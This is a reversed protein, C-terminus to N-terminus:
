EIFTGEGGSITVDKKQDYSLGARIMTTDTALYTYVVGDEDTLASWENDGESVFVETDVIPSGDATVFSLKTRTRGPVDGTYLTGINGGTVEVSDPTGLRLVSSTRVTGSSMTFSMQAHVGGKSGGTTDNILGGSIVINDGSMGCGVTDKNTLTITGGEITVDGFNAYYSDGIAAVYQNTGRGKGTANITGSKVILNGSNRYANNRGADGTASTYAYTNADGCGIGPSNNRDSEANLRGSGRINLLANINIQIPTSASASCFISNEGVLVLDAKVARSLGAGTGGYLIIGPADAATVTMSVNRLTIVPNGGKLVISNAGNSTGTVTIEHATNDGWPIEAGAGQAYGTDTIVISGDAIDLTVAPKEGSATVLINRECYKGATLLRKSAGPDLEFTFANPDAKVVPAPGSAKGAPASIVIDDNCMKGATLLLKSTGPSVEVNIDAM